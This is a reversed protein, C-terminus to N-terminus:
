GVRGALFVLIIGRPRDHRREGEGLSGLLVTVVTNNSVSATELNM